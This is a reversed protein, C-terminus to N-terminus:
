EVGNHYTYYSYPLAGGTVHIVCEGTNEVSFWGFNSLQTLSDILLPSYLDLIDITLTETNSSNDTVIVTYTGSHLNFQDENTLNSSHIFGSNSYSWEFSYPLVGGTVTINIEGEVGYSCLNDIHIETITLQAMISSSLILFLGLITNQLTKM